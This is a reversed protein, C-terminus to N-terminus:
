CPHIYVEDSPRQVLCSIPTFEIITIALIKIRFETIHTHKIYVNLAILTNLIYQMCVNGSISIMYIIQNQNLVHYTKDYGGVEM